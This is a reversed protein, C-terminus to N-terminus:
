QTLGKKALYEKGKGVSTCIPVGQACMPCEEEPWSDMQLDILSFLEPPFGVEERKVGGRNCLVGLGIVNGHYDSLVKNIVKKVSGGTTLVDELVLVSKRFVLEDYGRRIVFDDGDKEAYVAAINRRKEFMQLYFAVWQTLVIGGTAPAIVVEVDCNVFNNAIMRCVYRVAHMEAPYTAGMVLACNGNKNWARAVRWAVYQYLPVIGYTDRQETTSEFTLAPHPVPLDQFEGAGKNSTRCLVIVGIDERDLFLQLSEKGLMPHLTIANAGFNFMANLYGINTKGIDGRKADLIVPVNRAVKGIYRIIRGLAVWGAEGYYEFFAINPKYACVIDRIEDVIACCFRELYYVPLTGTCCCAPIKAADPDLGVCLFKGEAWRARLLEFFTPRKMIEGIGNDFDLCEVLGTGATQLRLNCYFVIILLYLAYEIKFYRLKM